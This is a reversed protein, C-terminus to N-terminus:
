GRKLHLRISSSFNLLDDLRNEVIDKLINVDVTEYSHVVINRVGTMDRM